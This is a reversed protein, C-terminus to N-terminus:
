NIARHITILIKLHQDLASHNILLFEDLLSSFIRFLLSNFCTYCNSLYLFFLRSITEDFCIRGHERDSVRLRIRIGLYIRLSLMRCPTAEFPSRFKVRM